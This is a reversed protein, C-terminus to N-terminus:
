AAVMSRVVDGLRPLDAATVVEGPSREWGNCGPWLGLTLFQDITSQMGVVDFYDKLDKEDRVRRVLLSPIPAIRSSSVYALDNLAVFPRCDALTTAPRPSEGRLYRFYDLHNEMLGDFPDLAVRETRGDNWRVECHSGVTYRLEAKECHVTEVHVSAGAGALTLAFRIPIGESTHAEVFFTDPGEIAHVRYSEAQVAVIGAWSFLEPAGAWFLMNHVFHAMSNGLCSDLLM